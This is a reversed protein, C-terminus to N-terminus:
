RETGGNKKTRRWRKYEHFFIMSSFYFIGWQIFPDDSIEWPQITGNKVSLGRISHIM